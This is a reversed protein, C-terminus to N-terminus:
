RVVTFYFKHLHVNTMGFNNKDINEVNAHM